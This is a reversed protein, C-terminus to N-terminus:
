GATLHEVASTNKIFIMGDFCENLKIPETITFKETEPTVPGYGIFRMKLANQYLSDKNTRFNVFYNKNEKSSLKEEWSNKMQEPLPYAKYENKKVARPATTASYTGFGTFTAMAYYEKGYKKKIYGGMGDVLIPKLAIHANHAFLIMKKNYGTQIKAIMEAMIYDRSVNYNKKGAEYLIEFGLRLNDLALRSNVDIKAKYISDMKKALLYGETGNDIVAKMDLRFSPDNQKEWMEDQFKAKKDLADAMESYAKEAIPNKKLIAANNALSNTDFGSIIVRDKHSKNYTRIWALLDAIEGTQWISTMGSKLATNLDQDSNVAENLLAADGYASEFAVIKFGNKEILRKSIESRIENFEKTGHTGEGLGVILQEKLQDSIENIAKTRSRANASQDPIPIEPKSHQSFVISSTLLINILLCKRLM